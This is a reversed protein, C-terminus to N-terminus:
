SIRPLIGGDSAYHIIVHAPRPSSPVVFKNERKDFYLAGVEDPPFAAITDETLKLGALWDQKLAPLDVRQNLRLRKHNMERKVSIGNALLIAEDAAFAEAVRKESDHIYDLDQSYRISNAEFHIAAGGALYSDFTHNVALLKALAAQFTTLPM